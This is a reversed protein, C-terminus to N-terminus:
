KSQLISLVRLQFSSVAKNQPNANLLVLDFALRSLKCDKMVGLNSQTYLFCFHERTPIGAAECIKFARNIADSIDETTLGKELLSSALYSMNSQYVQDLFSELVSSPSQNFSFPQIKM